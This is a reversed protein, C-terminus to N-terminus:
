PLQRDLAAVLAADHGYVDERLAVYGDSGVEVTVYSLLLPVPRPLTLTRTRGEAIVAAIADRSWQAPDALLREVLEHIREVRICGSSTSRQGSDFLAKHPTDHLYVSFPNPFRVVLEGLASHPGPDQRLTIAGPAAWNVQAPALERGAADLVRLHHRALYGHDRRIAPLMDERLITPPVVWSPNVTIQHIASRFEPTARYARGVQVRAEWETRGARVHRIRYGAIDVLVHEADGEGQLWRLRELNARVQDIRQRLPINLAARTAPGLVGDAELMAERQFRLLAHALEDDFLDDPGQLVHSAMGARQLRARLVAVRADQMGPKLAPGPPLLPWGGDLALGRLRALAARLANYQPTQPRARNFVDALTGAEVAERARALALRPEVARAAFNWHPSLQQPDVKGHYLHLLALLYARTALQERAALRAPDSGPAPLEELRGLGYDEPDLGDTYLGALAAQLQQLREEDWVPQWDRGAYFAAVAQPLAAPSPRLTAPDVAEAALAQRLLGAVTQPTAADAGSAAEAPLPALLGCLALCLARTWARCRGWRQAM